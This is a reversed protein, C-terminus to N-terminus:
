DDIDDGNGPLGAFGVFGYWFAGPVFYEMM